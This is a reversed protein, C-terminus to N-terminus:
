DADSDGLKRMLAVHRAALEAVVQMRVRRLKKYTIRSEPVGRLDDMRANHIQEDLGDRLFLLEALPWASLDTPM